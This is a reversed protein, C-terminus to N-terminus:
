KETIVARLWPDDPHVLQCQELSNFEKTDEHFALHVLAAAEADIETGDAAEWVADRRPRDEDWVRLADRTRKFDAM